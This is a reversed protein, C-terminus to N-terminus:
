ARTLSPHARPLAHLGTLAVYFYGAAFLALFPLSILTPDITLSLRICEIMYLGMALELALMPRRLSALPPLPPRRIVSRRHPQKSQARPTPSRNYKPTRIFPSDHGLLAELCAFANSLAIGIGVAMLLPVHLLTHAASGGRARQGVLYFVAASTSGLVFFGTGLALGLSRAKDLHALNVYIAPYFLLALLTIYLYVMPATLHFLAEVKVRSPASSRVIAPGLKLATQISGKTWRHQQSKFANIEPPLEAPCTVRPLFRCKWGALQARYSLDLDETLTDDHWGGADEIARRRWLGATGNFNIWFRSRHRATHEILFHADLFIAQARTLLSDDRNLHTWRTQLMGLQPDTFHHITRKLFRPPPIFDADFIVILEGTAHPLADALAGAKYGRRNTRHLYQVDLGRERWHRARGAALAATDDTSDDLVQIQLRDPAYDLACAADIVREAVSRENFMPLQVTVRPLTTYRDPPQLRPRRHRLCLHVLWHRHLGYAAILALLTLYAGTLSWRLLELDAFPM